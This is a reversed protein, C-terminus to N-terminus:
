DNGTEVLKANIVRNMLLVLLHKLLINVLLLLQNQLDVLLLRPKIQLVLDLLLNSVRLIQRMPVLNKPKNLRQLSQLLAQVVVSAHYEGASQDGERVVQLVLVDLVGVASLLYDDVVQLLPDLRALPGQLGVLLLVHRVYHGVGLVVVLVLVEELFVFGQVVLCLTTLLLDIDLFLELFLEHGILFRRLFVRFPQQRINPLQLLLTPIILLHNILNILLKLIIRRNLNKILPNLLLDPLLLLIFLAFALYGLLM